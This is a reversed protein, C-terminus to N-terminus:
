YLPKSKKKMKKGRSGSGSVGNFGSGCGQTCCYLTVGGDDQRTRGGETSIVGRAHRWEEDGGAALSPAALPAAQGATMNPHSKRVHGNVEKQEAFKAM